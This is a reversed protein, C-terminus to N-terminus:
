TLKNEHGITIVLKVMYFQYTCLCKVDFKVTRSITNFVNRM